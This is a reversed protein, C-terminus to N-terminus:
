LPGRNVADMLAMLARQSAPTNPIFPKLTGVPREVHDLLDNVKDKLDSEYEVEAQNSM